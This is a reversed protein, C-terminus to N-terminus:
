NIVPYLKLNTALNRCVMDNLDQLLIRRLAKRDNTEYIFGSPIETKLAQTCDWQLNGYGIAIERRDIINEKTSGLKDRITSSLSSLSLPPSEGTLSSQPNLPSLDPKLLMQYITPLPFSFSKSGSLRCTILSITQYQNFRRYNVDNKLRM